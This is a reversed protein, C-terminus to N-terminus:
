ELIRPILINGSIRSSMTDLTQTYLWHVLLRVTEEDVDQIKYEQTQGELFNGNFAADFVPSYHCAFYKHVVFKTPSDGALLTVLQQPKRLSPTGARNKM